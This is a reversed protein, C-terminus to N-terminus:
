RIAEHLNNLTESLDSNMYPKNEGSCHGKQWDHTMRGNMYHQAYAM